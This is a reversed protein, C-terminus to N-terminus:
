STTHTKAKEEECCSKVWSEEPWKLNNTYSLSTPLMGSLKPSRSHMKLEAQTLLAFLIVFTPRQFSQQTVEQPSKFVPVINQAFDPSPLMPFVLRLHSKAVLSALILSLFSITNCHLTMIQNDEYRISIQWNSMMESHNGKPVMKPCGM